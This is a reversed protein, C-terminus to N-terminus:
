PWIINYTIQGLGSGKHLTLKCIYTFLEVYFAYCSIRTNCQYPDTLLSLGNNGTGPYTQKATYGAAGGM